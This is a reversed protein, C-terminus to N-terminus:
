SQWDLRLMKRCKIYFAFWKKVEYENNQEYCINLYRVAFQQQRAEIKKNKTFKSILANIIGELNSYKYLYLTHFFFWLIDDNWREVQWM